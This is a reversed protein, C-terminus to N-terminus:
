FESEFEPIEEPEQRAAAIWERMLEWALIRECYAACVKDLKVDYTRFRTVVPAYMADALTLAGFLYSGKSAALCNRWVTTIRDIDAQAGSFIPFGPHFARLNVPCASRLASFGSHMEGSVSRC